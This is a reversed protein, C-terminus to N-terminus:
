KKVLVGNVLMYNTLTDSMCANFLSVSKRKALPQWQQRGQEPTDRWRQVAARALARRGLQAPTQPDLPIVHRRLQLNVGVFEPLNGKGPAVRQFVYKGFPLLPDDPKFTLTKTILLAKM